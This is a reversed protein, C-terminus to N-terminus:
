ANSEAPNPTESRVPQHRAGSALRNRWWNKLRNVVGLKKLLGKATRNVFFEFTTALNCVLAKLTPAYLSPFEEVERHDGFREKYTAAGYGFDVMRVGQEALDKFMKLLLVTGPNLDQHAPDFGTWNSFWAQRYTVGAWFAVPKGGLFLVYARLWGREAAFKLYQRNEESNMFGVGLGRQYTTRAVCEAQRCFEEIQDPDQFIKLETGLPHQDMEKLVRRLWWRQKRSKRELFEDFTCPVSMRWHETVEHAHDRRLLGPLARAAARLESGAPVNCLQVRDAKRQDLLGLLVAVVADAVPRTVEGLFGDAVFTLQKLRVCAVTLYAIRLPLILKELRGVLLAV